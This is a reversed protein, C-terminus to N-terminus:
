KYLARRTSGVAFMYILKKKKMEIEYSINRGHKFSTNIHIYKEEYNKYRASIGGRVERTMAM